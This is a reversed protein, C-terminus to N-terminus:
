TRKLKFAKKVNKEKANSQNHTNKISIKFNIFNFKYSFQVLKVAGTFKLKTQSQKVILHKFFELWLHKDHWVYSHCGYNEM